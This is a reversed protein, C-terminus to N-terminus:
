QKGNVLGMIDELSQEDESPSEKDSFIKELNNYFVKSNKKSPNNGAAIALYLISVLNKLEVRKTDNKQKNVFVIRQEIEKLTMEEVEEIRLPM